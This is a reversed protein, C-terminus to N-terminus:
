IAEEDDIINEPTEGNLEILSGDIFCIDEDSFPVNVKHGKYEFTTM